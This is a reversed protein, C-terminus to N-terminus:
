PTYGEKERQALVDIVVLEPDNNIRPIWGSNGLGRSLILTGHELPYSGGYYKPFFGTDQHYLAGIGPLIIQGGHYHGAVALDFEKDALAEYFLDPFHSMALLFGDQELFTEVLAQVEDDKWYHEAHISKALLAIHDEGHEIDYLGGYLMHVGVEQLYRDLPVQLGDKDYQLIGEHNGYIYYVDTLASLEKCLSLVVSLEPDDKNVMDGCMLIIDPDYAEIERILRINGTGFEQNHLDSLLAIKLDNKLKPTTLTYHTVMLEMTNLAMLWLGAGLALVMAVAALLCMKKANSKKM